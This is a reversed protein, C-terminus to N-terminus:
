RWPPEKEMMGRGNLYRRASAPKVIRDIGNPMSGDLLKVAKVSTKRFVRSTKRSMILTTVEKRRSRNIISTVTNDPAKTATILRESKMWPPFRTAPRPEPATPPMKPFGFSRASAIFTRRGTAIPRARLRGLGKELSTFTMQAAINAIALTPVYERAPKRLMTTAPAKKRTLTRRTYGAAHAIPASAPPMRKTELGPRTKVRKPDPPSSNAAPLATARHSSTLRLMSTAPALGMRQVNPTPMPLKPMTEMWSWTLWLVKRSTNLSTPRGAMIQKMTKRELTNFIVPKM